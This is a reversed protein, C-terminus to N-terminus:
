IRCRDMIARDMKEPVKHLSDHNYLLKTLKEDSINEISEEEKSLKQTNKLFPKKHRKIRKKSM